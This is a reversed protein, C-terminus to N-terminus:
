GAKPLTEAGSFDPPGEYVQPYTTQEAQLLALRRPGALQQRLGQNEALLPQLRQQFKQEFIEPIEELLGHLTALEAKAQALEQEIAKLAQPQEQCVRNNAWVFVSAASSRWKPEPSQHPDLEM